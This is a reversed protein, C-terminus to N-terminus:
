ALSRDRHSAVMARMDAVDRAYRRSRILHHDRIGAAVPVLPDFARLGFREIRALLDFQLPNRDDALYADFASRCRRLEVSLDREDTTGTIRAGPDAGTPVLDVATLVGQRYESQSGYGEGAVISVSRRGRQVEHRARAANSAFVADIVIVGERYSPVAIAVPGAAYAFVGHGDHVLLAGPLSLAEPTLLLGEHVHATSAVASFAAITM